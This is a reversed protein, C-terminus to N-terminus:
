CFVFYVFLGLLVAVTTLSHPVPAQARPLIEESAAVKTHLTFLRTLPPGANCSAHPFDQLISHYALHLQSNQTEAEM